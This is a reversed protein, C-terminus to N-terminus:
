PATPTCATLCDGRWVIRLGECDSAGRV